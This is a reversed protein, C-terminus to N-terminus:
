PAINGRVYLEPEDTEVFEDQFTKMNFVKRYASAPRPVNTKAGRKAAGKAPAPEEKAPNTM